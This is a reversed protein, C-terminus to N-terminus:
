SGYPRPGLILRRQQGSIIRSVTRCTHFEGEATSQARSMRNVCHRSSATCMEDQQQIHRLSPPKTVGRAASM